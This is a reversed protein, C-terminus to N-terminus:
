NTQLVTYGYVRTNTWNSSTRINWFRAPTTTSFLESSTNPHAKLQAALAYGHRRAPANTIPPPLQADTLIHEAIVCNIMHTTRAHLRKHATATSPATHVWPSRHLLTPPVIDDDIDDKIIAPLNRRNLQPSM